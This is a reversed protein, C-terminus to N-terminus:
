NENNDIREVSQLIFGSDPFEELIWEAYYGALEDCKELTTDTTRFRYELSEDEKPKIYKAIYQVTYVM